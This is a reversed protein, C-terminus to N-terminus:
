DAVKTAHSNSYCKTKKKNKERPLSQKKRLRHVRM